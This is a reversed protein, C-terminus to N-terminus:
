HKSEMSINLVVEAIDSAYEATRRIDEVMLPLVHTPELKSSQRDLKNILNQEMETISRSKEVVKDAAEYDSKFLALGSEDFLSLAFDSMRSMESLISENPARELMTVGEAIKSAHDAVREVSKVILRYDLCDRRREIGVEKLITDNQMAINLQRIVYLGFRDVEDDAKIVGRATDKSLKRLASIAEKHMSTALLFMRKIANMVSLEPYSLLVQLEVGEISDATLETGVLYKRTAEKIADRQALTLGRGGEEIEKQKAGVRITNHGLLYASVVRRVVSGLTEGRSIEVTAEEGYKPAVRSQMPSVLLSSDDQESVIVQDSPRLGMKEVWKKPLALMYSSKGSFQIKRAEENKLGAEKGTHAQVM